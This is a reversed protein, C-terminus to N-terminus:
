ASDKGGDQLFEELDVAQRAQRHSMLFERLFEGHRIGRVAGEGEERQM